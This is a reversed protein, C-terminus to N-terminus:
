SGGSRHFVNAFYRLDDAWCGCRGRGARLWVGWVWDSHAVCADSGGVFCEGLGRGGRGLGGAGLERVVVRVWALSM